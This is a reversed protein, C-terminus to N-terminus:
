VCNVVGGDGGDVAIGFVGSGCSRMIIPLLDV